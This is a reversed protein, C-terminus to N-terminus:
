ENHYPENRIITFARYLQEAFIIRIMQHTFTMKSLSLQFSAIKKLENSIGFAGGCVFCLDKTGANMWKQLQASFDISRLETGREDLLVITSGLPINKSLLSAEREKLQSISLKSSDKVVPIIIINVNIYHRLRELYLKFGQDIFGEETKGILVFTIKM